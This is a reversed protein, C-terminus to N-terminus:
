MGKQQPTYTVNLYYHCIPTAFEFNPESWSVNISYPGALLSAHDM